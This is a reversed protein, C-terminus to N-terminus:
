KIGWLRLAKEVLEFNLYDYRRLSLYFGEDAPEGNFRADCGLRTGILVRAADAFEKPAEDVIGCRSGDKDFRLAPCAGTTKFLHRGLICTTAM